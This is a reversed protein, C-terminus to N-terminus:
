VCRMTCERTLRYCPRLLIVTQRLDANYKREYIDVCLRMRYFWEVVACYVLDTIENDSIGSVKGESGTSSIVDEFFGDLIGDLKLLFTACNGPVTSMDGTLKKKTARSRAARALADIAYLSSVKASSPLAKHM